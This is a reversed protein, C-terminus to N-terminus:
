AAISEMDLSSRKGEAGLMVGLWAFADVQDDFKGNPFALLEEIFDDAWPTAKEHPFYVTKNAMRSQIARARIQKDNLATLFIPKVFINRKRMELSVSPWIARRIAGDEFGFNSPRWREQTDVIKRPIDGEGKFREIDLVFLENKYRGVTLIVNYNNRDKKGVALDMASYRAMAPPLDQKTYRMIWFKKFYNGEEARPHQQYLSAWWYAGSDKKIDLLEEVPYRSSLAQGTEREIEPEDREAIAPYNIVVWHKGKEEEDQEEINQLIKGALDNEASRTMVLVIAGDPTLRSRLTSRYWEWVTEQVSESQAEDYKIPDDIIAIRAGRGPIPGGVGAATMGGYRGQLTWRAAARTDESVRLNGYLEHHNQIIARCQKSWDESLTSGYSSLIVEDDPYHLFYWASFAKSIIESKGHRPPLFVMLRNIRRHAIDELHSCLIELYPESKWRGNSIYIMFKSLSEKAGVLEPDQTSGIGSLLDQFLGDVIFNKSYEIESM